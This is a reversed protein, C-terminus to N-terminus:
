EDAKVHGLEHLLVRDGLQDARRRSVNAVFLAALQGLTHLSRRVRHHQEVFNLLRVRVQEVDKQLHKFIALEGVTQAVRHVELVGDDDHGGVDSRAMKHLAGAQAELGLLLFHDGGLDLVHHLVLHLAGEVGLEEVTEVLDDDEVSQCLHVEDLDDFQHHLLEILVQRLARDSHRHRFLRALPDEVLREGVATVASTWQAARQLLVDLVRHRLRKDLPRECLPGREDLNIEFAALEEIAGYAFLLGLAHQQVAVLYLAAESAASFLCKGHTKFPRVKLHATCTREEQWESHAEAWSSDANRVKEAAESATGQYLAIYSM